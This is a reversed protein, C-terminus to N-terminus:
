LLPGIGPVSDPIIGEEKKPPSPNNQNGQGPAQNNKTQPPPTSSQSTNNQAPSSPPPNVSLSTTVCQELNDIIVPRRDQTYRAFVDAICKIYAKNQSALRQNDSSLQNNQESLLKIDEGQKRIVNSNAKAIQVGEATKMYSKYAGVLGLLVAVLIIFPVRKALEKLLAKGFRTFKNIM